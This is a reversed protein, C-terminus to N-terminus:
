SCVDSVNSDFYMWEHFHMQLHRRRFPPWKTWPSHTLGHRKPSFPICVNQEDNIWTIIQHWILASPSKGDLLNDPVLILLIRCFIWFSFILTMFYQFNYSYFPFMKDPNGRLYSMDHMSTFFYTFLTTVAKLQCMIRDTKTIKCPKTKKTCFKKLSVQIQIQMEYLKKVSLKYHHHHKTTGTAKLDYHHKNMGRWCVNPCVSHKNVM